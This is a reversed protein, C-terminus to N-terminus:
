QLRHDTQQLRDCDTATKKLRQTLLWHKFCWAPSNCDITIQQLRNLRRLTQTFPLHKACPSKSSSSPTPTARPTHFNLTQNLEMLPPGSGGGFLFWRSKRPDIKPGKKQVPVFYWKPENKTGAKGRCIRDPGAPCALTGASTVSSLRTNLARRKHVCSGIAEVGPEEEGSRGPRSLIILWAHDSAVHRTGSRGSQWARKTSFVLCLVLLPTVPARQTLGHNVRSITQVPDNRLPHALNRPSWLNRVYVTCGWCGAIKQCKQPFKWLTWPGKCFNSASAPVFLSGSVNKTGTWCFPQFISGWTEFM